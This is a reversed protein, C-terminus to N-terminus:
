AKCFVQVRFCLPKQLRITQGERQLREASVKTCVSLAHSKLTCDTTQNRMFISLNEGTPVTTGGQRSNWKQGETVQLWGRDSFILHFIGSIFLLYNNFQTSNQTDHHFGTGDHEMRVYVFFTWGNNICRCHNTHRRHLRAALSLPSSHVHTFLSSKVARTLPPSLCQQTLMHVTHGNCEFHSLSYLLSDADFKTNLKFMWKCFSNLLHLLGCRHAAPSQCSWWSLAGAWADRRTCPKKPSVDFWQPSEAGRCGLNPTRSKQSKGFSFDGKFPFINWVM